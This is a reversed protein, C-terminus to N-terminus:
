EFINRRYYDLFNYSNNYLQGKNFSDYDEYKKSFTEKESFKTKAGCSKLYESVKDNKFMKSYFIPSKTYFNDGYPVIFHRTKDIYNIDMGANVLIKVINFYCHNDTDYYNFNFHLLGSLCEYYDYENSLYVLEPSFLFEKYNYLYEYFDKQRVIGGQSFFENIKEELLEDSLVKKYEMRKNIIYAVVNKKISLKKDLLTIRQHVSDKIIAIKLPYNDKLCVGCEILCEVTQIDGYTIATMLNDKCVLHTENLLFAKILKKRYYNPKYYKFIPSGKEGMVPIFFSLIVHFFHIYKYDQLHYSHKKCKYISNKNYCFNQIGNFSFQTLNINDPWFKTYIYPHINRIFNPFNYNFKYLEKFKNDRCLYILNKFLIISQLSINISCMICNLNILKPLKNFNRFVAPIYNKMINIIKQIQSSCIFNMTKCTNKLKYIDQLCCFQLINIIIEPFLDLFKKSM